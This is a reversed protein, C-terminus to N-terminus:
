PLNVLLEEVELQVPHVPVDDLDVPVALLAALREPEWRRPAACQFRAGGRTRRQSIGVAKAGDITVEGAGLGAFCVLEGWRGRELAGRHVDGAGLAAVFVEGVWWAARGVDDDWLPDGKPLEIDVWLVAGVDLLVAGGGSRRRVVEVGARECAARDVVDDPQASGLVLAPSDVELVHVAREVPDPFPRAHFADASGAARHVAWTM